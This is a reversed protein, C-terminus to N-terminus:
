AVKREAHNNGYMNVFIFNTSYNIEVGNIVKNSYSMSDTMGDFSGCEYNKVIAEVQSRIESACEVSITHSHPKTVSFKYGPFTAKLEAKIIKATESTTYHTKEMKNGETM